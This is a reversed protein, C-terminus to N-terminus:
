AIKDTVTTFTHGPALIARERQSPGPPVIADSM